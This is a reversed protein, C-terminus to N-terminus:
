KNLATLFKLIKNLMGLCFFLHHTVSAQSYALLYHNETDLCAIFCSFVASSDSRKEYHFGSKLM